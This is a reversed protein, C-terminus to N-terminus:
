RRAFTKVDERLSERRSRRRLVPRQEGRRQQEDVSRMGLSTSVHCECECEYEWSQPHRCCYQVPEHLPPLTSDGFSSVAPFNAMDPLSHISETVSNVRDQCLQSLRRLNKTTSTTSIHSSSSASSAASSESFASPPLLQPRALLPSYTNPLLFGHSDERYNSPLM